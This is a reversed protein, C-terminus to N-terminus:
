EYKTRVPLKVYNYSEGPMTDVNMEKCMKIANEEHLFIDIITSSEWDIDQTVVYVFDM